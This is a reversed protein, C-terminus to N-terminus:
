SLYPAWAAPALTLLDTRFQSTSGRAGSGESSIWGCGDLDANIREVPRRRGYTFYLRVSANDDDPCVVQAAQPKFPAVDVDFALASAIRSGERVSAAQCSKDNLGPTWVVEVGLPHPAVSPRTPGYSPQGTGAVSCVGGNVRTGPVIGSSATAGKQTAIAKGEGLSMLTMTLGLTVVIRASLRM